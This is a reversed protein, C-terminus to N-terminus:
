RCSINLIFRYESSKIRLEIIGVTLREFEEEVNKAENIIIIIIIIIPINGGQL